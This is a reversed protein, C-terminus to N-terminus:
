ERRHNLHSVRHGGGGAQRGGELLCGLSDTFVYRRGYFLALGENIEDATTEM